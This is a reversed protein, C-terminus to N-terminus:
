NIKNQFLSLNIICVILEESSCKAVKHKSFLNVILRSFLNYFSRMLNSLLQFRKKQSRLAKHRSCFHVNTIQFFETMAPYVIRRERITIYTLQIKILVLALSQDAGKLHEFCLEETSFFTGTRATIFILILNLYVINCNHYILNLCTRTIQEIM